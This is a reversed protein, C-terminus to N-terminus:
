DWDILADLTNVDVYIFEDDADHHRRAGVMDIVAIGLPTLEERTFPYTLTKVMLVSYGNPVDTFIEEPKYM